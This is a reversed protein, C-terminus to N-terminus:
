SSTTWSSHCIKGGRVRRRGRSLLRDLHSRDVVLSSGQLRALGRLAFVAPVDGGWVEDGPVIDAVLVVRETTEQFRRAGALVVQFDRWTAGRVLFAETAQGGLTTKGVLWVRDPVLEEVGAAAPLADALARALSSLDIEWQRLRYPPVHVRGNEPCVIYARFGSGPPSEILQVGERHGTACADCDVHRANAAERLLGVGVLRELCSEPWEKMDDGTFVPHRADIRTWLAHLSDDCV